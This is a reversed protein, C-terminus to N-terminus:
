FFLWLETKIRSNLSISLPLSLCSLYITLFVSLSLSFFFASFSLFVSLSLSLELNPPSAGQFTVLILSSSPSHRFNYESWRSSVAKEKERERKSTIIIIMILLRLSSALFLFFNPLFFYSLFLLKVLFYNM